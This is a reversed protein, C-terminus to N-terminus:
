QAALLAETRLLNGQKRQDLGPHEPQQALAQGVLGVFHQRGRGGRRYLAVPAHLQFSRHLLEHACLQGGPLQIDPAQHEATAGALFDGAFQFDRDLGHFDM